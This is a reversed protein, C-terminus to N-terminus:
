QYRPRACLISSSSKRLVRSHTHSAQGDQEVTNRSHVICILSVISLSITDYSSQITSKYDDVCTSILANAHEFSASSNRAHTALIQSRESGITYNRVRGSNRQNNSKNEPWLAHKSLAPSPTHLKPLTSYGCINIFLRSKVVAPSCTYMLLSTWFHM